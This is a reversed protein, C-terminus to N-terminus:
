LHVLHFIYLTTKKSFYMFPFGGPCTKMLSLIIHKDYRLSKDAHYELIWMTHLENMMMLM